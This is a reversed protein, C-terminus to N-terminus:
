MQNIHSEGVVAEAMTAFSPYSKNEFIYTGVPLDLERAHKVCAHRERVAGQEEERITFVAPKSCFECADFSM